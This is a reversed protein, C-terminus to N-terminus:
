PYWPANASAASRANAPAIAASTSSRPIRAGAGAAEATAASYGCGGVGAEGISARDGPSFPCWSQAPDECRQDDHGREGTKAGGADAIRDSCFNVAAADDFM